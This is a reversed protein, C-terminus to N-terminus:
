LVLLAEVGNYILNKLTEKIGNFDGNAGKFLPVQKQLDFLKLIRDAEVYHQDIDGGNKTANVTIGLVNFYNGNCFLYALAHQDDLENNADTDFIVPKKTRNSPSEQANSILLAGFIFQIIFVIRVM